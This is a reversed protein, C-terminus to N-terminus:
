WSMWVVRDMGRRVNATNHLRWAMQLHFRRIKHASSTGLVSDVYADASDDFTPRTRYYTWACSLVAAHNHPRRLRVGTTDRNAGGM